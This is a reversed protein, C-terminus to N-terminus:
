WFSPERPVEEDVEQPAATWPGRSNFGVGDMLTIVGYVADCIEAGNSLGEFHAEWWVRQHAIM